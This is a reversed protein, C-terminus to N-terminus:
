EEQTYEEIARALATISVPTECAGTNAWLTVCYSEPTEIGDKTGTRGSQAIVKPAGTGAVIKGGHQPAVCAQAEHAQCGPNRFGDFQAGSGVTLQEGEIPMRLIKPPPPPPLESPPLYGQASGANSTNVIVALDEKPNSREITIKQPLRDTLQAGAKAFSEGGIIKGHVVTVSEIKAATTMGPFTTWTLTLVANDKGLDDLRVRLGGSELCVKVVNATEPDGSSMSISAASEKLQEINVIKQLESRLQDQREKSWTGPGISIPGVKVQGSHALAEGSTKLDMETLSSLFLLKSYDSFSSQFNKVVLDRAIQACDAGQAQAPEPLLCCTALTAILALRKTM